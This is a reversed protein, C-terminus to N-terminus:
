TLERALTLYAEMRAAAQEVKTQLTGLENARFWELSEKAEEVSDDVMWGMQEAVLEPSSGRRFHWAIGQAHENPWLDALYEEWIVQEALSKAFDVKAPISASEVAPSLNWLKASEYILERDSAGNGQSEAPEFQVDVQLGAGSAISPFKLDAAGEVKDVTREEGPAIQFTLEWLRSGLKAIARVSCLCPVPLTNHVRVAFTEGPRIGISDETIEVGGVIQLADPHQM